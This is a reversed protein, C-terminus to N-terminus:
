AAPESSADAVGHGRGRQRMATALGLGALVLAGGLLTRPSPVVGMWAWELLMVLPPVLFLFSGMTGADTRKTAAAWLLAGLAGPVVGTYLAAMTASAPAAHIAAPLDLAFPALFLTGFWV